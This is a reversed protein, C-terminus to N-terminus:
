VSQKYDMCLYNITGEAASSMKLFQVKEIVKVKISGGFSNLLFIKM